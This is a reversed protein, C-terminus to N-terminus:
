TLPCINVCLSDLKIGPGSGLLAHAASGRLVSRVEEVCAALERATLRRLLRADNLAESFGAVPVLPTVSPDADSAIGVSLRGRREAAQLGFLDARGAIDLIAVVVDAAEVGGGAGVCLVLLGFGSQSWPLFAISVRTRPRTEVVRQHMSAPVALMM